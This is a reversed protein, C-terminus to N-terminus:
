GVTLGRRRHEDVMMSCLVKEKMGAETTIDGKSLQDLRKKLLRLIIDGEENSVSLKRENDFGIDIKM